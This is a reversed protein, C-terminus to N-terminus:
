FSPRLVGTSDEPKKPKTTKPKTTTPKTTSPNSSSPKTTPKSSSSRSHRSSPKTETAPPVELKALEFKFPPFEQNPAFSRSQSQYGDLSVRVTVLGDGNPVVVDVPSKGRMESGLYVEAGPPTTEVAIIRVAPPEEKREPAVAADAPSDVAVAAAAAADSVAAQAETKEGAGSTAAIVAAAIGGVAVVAIGAFLLGRNKKVPPAQWAGSPGAQAQLYGPAPTHMPTPTHLQGPAPTYIQGPAPTYAGPMPTLASGARAHLNPLPQGSDALPAALFGALGGHMEVYSVPDLLARLFEEMTPFRQEKKKELAKLVVAELHPPIAAILSSLPAPPQTLHQVLVEGYGEGEFPVRGTLMQYLVVALAYVDARHDINGRGECQEPSMYAPTGMVIGTRTKHSQHGEGTLKAIGFDLVKVFDHEHRKEVLMINDPKLDRHVIGNKHSAALADAIQVSIRLARDAPLPAENELVYTLSRGGLFEMIFYVMSEGRGGQVVGYDIIDVINPHQIDNVAKAENFFRDVVEGKSSLEPHLVKLAVRKGILPHEAMYVAGMGGEGLKAKVIYNGISQGLLPDDHAEAQDM